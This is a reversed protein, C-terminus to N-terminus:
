SATISSRVTIARDVRTRALRERLSTRTCVVEIDGGADRATAAAGLLVGLGADDLVTVGDLDVVVTEGPHQRLVQTLAGHFAAITALDVAGEVVAVTAGGVDTISTHVQV